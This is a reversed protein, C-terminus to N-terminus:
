RRWDVVSSQGRKLVRQFQGAGAVGKLEIKQIRSFRQMLGSLDVSALDQPRACTFVFSADLDAHPSDKAGAGAASELVPAEVEVSKLTCQAKADPSVLGQGSRLTSLLKEAAKKEAATRPAREFGIFSDLPAEELALTLESGELALTMPVVGHVHAAAAGAKGAHEHGHEHGHSAGAASVTGSLVAAGVVLGARAVWRASLGRVAVLPICSIDNM